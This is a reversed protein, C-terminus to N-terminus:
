TQCYSTDRQSSLNVSIYPIYILGVQNSSHRSSQFDTDSEITYVVQMSDQYSFGVHHFLWPLQIPFICDPHQSPYQYGKVRSDPMICLLGHNVNETRGYNSTSLIPYM